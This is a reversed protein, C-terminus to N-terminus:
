SLNMEISSCVQIKSNLSFSTNCNRVTMMPIKEKLYLSLPKNETEFKIEAMKDTVGQGM